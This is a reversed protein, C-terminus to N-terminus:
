PYSGELDRMMKLAIDACQPVLGNGLARIRKGRDKIRLPTTRPTNPPESDFGMHHELGSNPVDPNTWLNPLGMMWEAYAPNIRGNGDMQAVVTRLNKGGARKPTTGPGGAGDSRTPTPLLGSPTPFAWSSGLRAARVTSRTEVESVLGRVSIGARPLKRLEGGGVYHIRREKATGLIRDGTPIHKLLDSRVAVLYLRDRLHPAGVAAAPLCDWRCSYGAATLGGLIVDLGKGLLAAVNEVLVYEPSFEQVVRLMEFWLGSRSGNLGDGYGPHSIDQCPFGGSVLLPRYVQAEFTALDATTVARVDPFHAANPYRVGLLRRLWDDVEATAVTRFGAKEVALDTAGTGAFLSIHSGVVM